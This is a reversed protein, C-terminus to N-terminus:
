NQASNLVEAVCDALSTMTAERAIGAPRIGEKELASGTLPSLAIWRANKSANGFLRLLSKVTASSTATVAAIKGGQLAELVDTSAKEVDASHYAEVEDYTAGRKVLEESLIQRGRSARLSLFRTSTFDSVIADFTAVLHEADFFEPTADPSSIGYPFLAKATGSGVVAVKVGWERLAEGCADLPRAFLEALREMAVRAGNASSIVLWDYEKLALSRLAADLREPERSPRIEIAPQRMTAFNRAHLLTELEEAQDVPRTVLVIKRASNESM